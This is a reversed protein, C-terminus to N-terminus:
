NSQPWHHQYCTLLSPCTGAGPGLPQAHSISDEPYQPSCIHLDQKARKNGAPRQRPFCLQSGCPAPPFIMRLDYSLDFHCVLVVPGLSGPQSQMTATFPSLGKHEQGQQISGLPRCGEGPRALVECRHHFCPWSTCGGGQGMCREATREVPPLPPPPSARTILICPLFLKHLCIIDKNLKVSM